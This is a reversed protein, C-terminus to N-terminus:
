EKNEPVGNTGAEGLKCAEIASRNLRDGKSTRAGALSPQKDAILIYGKLIQRYEMLSFIRLSIPLLAM